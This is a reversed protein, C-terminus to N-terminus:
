GWLKRFNFSGNRKFADGFYSGDNKEKTKPYIKQAM